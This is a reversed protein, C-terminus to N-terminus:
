NNEKLFIKETCSYRHRKYLNTLDPKVSSGMQCLDAKVINASWYEYSKLLHIALKTKRFEPLVYWAVEMTTVTTYLPLETAIAFLLGVINDEKEAVLCLYKNPEELSLMFLEALKGEDFVYNSYISEEHFALSVELIQDYDEETCLRITM